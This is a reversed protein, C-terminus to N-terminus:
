SLIMRSNIIIFFGGRSGGSRFEMKEDNGSNAFQPRLSLYFKAPLLMRLYKGYPMNNLQLEAIIRSKTPSKADHLPIEVTYITGQAIKNQVNKSLRKIEAHGPEVNQARQSMDNTYAKQCQYTVFEKHTKTKILGTPTCLLAEDQFTISFEPVNPIFDNDAILPLALFGVLSFLIAIRHLLSFM